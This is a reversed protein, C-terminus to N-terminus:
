SMALRKRNSEIWEQKQREAESLTPTSRIREAEAERAAIIDERLFADKRPSKPDQEDDDYKKM